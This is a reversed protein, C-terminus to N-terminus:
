GDFRWRGSGPPREVLHVTGTILDDGILVHVGVTSYDLSPLTTRV